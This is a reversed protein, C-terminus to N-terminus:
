PKWGRLLILQKCSNLLSNWFGSLDQDTWCHRAHVSKNRIKLFSFGGGRKWSHSFLEKRWCMEMEYNITCPASVERELTHFLEKRWCVEMEYNITCPSSVERLMKFHLGLGTYHLKVYLISKMWIQLFWEEKYIRLFHNGTCWDLYGRGQTHKCHMNGYFGNNIEVM